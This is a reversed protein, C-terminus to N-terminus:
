EGPTLVLSARHHSASLGHRGAFEATDKVGAVSRHKRRKGFPALKRM